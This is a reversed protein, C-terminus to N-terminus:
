KEQEKTLTNSNGNQLITLQNKVPDFKITIGAPDFRFEHKESADLDFKAQGTAQAQLLKGSKTITIKLPFTDNSYTGLYQNLDKAKVDYNEFSPIIFSRDFLASLLALSINNTRYNAGNLTFSFAAKENEYYGLIANFGDIGGTHGFGVKDYFPVLFLGMGYNEKITKMQEISERSIIKDNFLAHAFLILDSPTSSIGGAGMPISTHTVPQQKWRKGFVYSHAENDNTDIESGFYTNELGLPKVIKENLIDGFSKDYISELIYSLLVYNSNSYESKSDPEFVSGLDSIKKVMEDKSKVDIQYELYENKNNTFNFIGSRHNLLNGITIKKNNRISPFYNEITQDLRIEGEEIAQFVLTATFTKSISGIRYRTNENPIKENKIDALGIQKTYVIKGERLLAFSGIAKNNAELAELYQDLKKIDIEQGFAELTISTLILIFALTRM